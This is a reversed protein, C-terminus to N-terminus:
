PNEPKTSQSQADMEKLQQIVKELKTYAQQNKDQLENITLQLVQKERHTKETLSQIRDLKDELKRFQKELM